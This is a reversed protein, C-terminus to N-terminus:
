SFRSHQYMKFRQRMKPLHLIPFLYVTYAHISINATFGEFGVAVYHDLFLTAFSHSLFNRRKRLRRKQLQNITCNSLQGANSALIFFVRAKDQQM